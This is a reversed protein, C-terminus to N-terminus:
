PPALWIGEVRGLAQALKETRFPSAALAVAEWPAGVALRPQPLGFHRRAASTAARLVADAGLGAEQFRDAEEALAQGHVVGMSGAD